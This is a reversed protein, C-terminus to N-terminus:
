GLTSQIKFGPLKNKKRIANAEGRDIKMVYFVYLKEAAADIPKPYFDRILGVADARSKCGTDALLLRTPMDNLASRRIGVVHEYHLTIGRYTAPEVTGVSRGKKYRRITTYRPWSLKEYFKSYKM